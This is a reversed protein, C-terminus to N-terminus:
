VIDFTAARISGLGLRLSIQQCLVQSHVMESVLEHVSGFPEWYGIATSLCPSILLVVLESSLGMSSLVAQLSSQVPHGESSLGM